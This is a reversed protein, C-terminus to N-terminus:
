ALPEQTLGYRAALAALRSAETTLVYVGHKKYTSLGLKSRLLSGVYRNSLPRDYEVSFRKNFHLSIDALPVPEGQRASSLELVVGLLEADITTSRASTRESEIQALARRAECRTAEDPIISLLPILIQNTRPSLEPDILSADAKASLRHDFRYQLLKNRLVTAEERQVPPLNLPIDPRTRIAEMRETIFRSELAEDEFSKRMAILKPGFVQFARPDFERKITIATRFVPFGRVNGANLIKVLEATQDSFRFDAEDLVLTGRFTDLTHFIPSVTSAGSAFFARYCLSGIVILARTKGSGFDAQVRLYPVEEFADYLWTFLIYYAALRQFWGSLVVYRGLYADIEAVLTAVDGYPEPREPLLIANHRILSNSASVPVLIEGAALPLENVM